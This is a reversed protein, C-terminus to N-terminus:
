SPAGTKLSLLDLRRLKVEEGSTQTLLAYRPSSTLAGPGGAGQLRCSWLPTPREEDPAPRVSEQVERKGLADLCHVTLPLDVSNLDETAIIILCFV